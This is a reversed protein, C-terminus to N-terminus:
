EPNSPKGTRTDLRGAGEFHDYDVALRLCQDWLPLSTEVLQEITRYIDPYRTPHLNNIYSTFKVGGDEKFAVNAPLWQYTSSWYEPPIDSGGISYSHDRLWPETPQVEDEVKPIVAGKGAWHEVADEVGVQEEKFGHTRGYVLPYMSPHVLDQVMSNSNPHWDPSAAHDVKLKDFAKHLSDQLEKSVLKDSKAVSACADLTPIIGSQEFYKAKSRLEHVIQSQDAVCADSGYMEVYRISPPKM